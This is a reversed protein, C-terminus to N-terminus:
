KKKKRRKKKKTEQLRRRRKNSVWVGAGLASVLLLTWLCNLCDDVVIFEPVQDPPTVEVHSDESLTINLTTTLATLIDQVVREEDTLNASDYPVCFDVGQAMATAVVSPYVDTYSPYVAADACDQDGNCVSLVSNFPYNLTDRRYGTPCPPSLPPASRPRESSFM